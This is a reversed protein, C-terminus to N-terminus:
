GPWFTEEEGDAEEFGRYQSPDTEPYERRIAAVACAPIM